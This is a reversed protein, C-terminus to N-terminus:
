CFVQHRYIFKHVRTKIVRKFVKKPKIVSKVLRTLQTCYSWENDYWVMLKVKNIGTDMSHNDVYFRNTSQLDSSVMSDTNVTYLEHVSLDDLITKLNVSKEFELSIDLLSCNNVPVRVSTGFIKGKLSPIIDTIGKSAGTTSPIINNFVSRSGTTDLVSQSNTAAHITIFNCHTISYKDNLVKLLPALCNTTCSSASIVRQNTYNNENAGYVFSPTNDKPPSSMIVLKVNYKLCEENTLFAGTADFLYIGQDFPENPLLLKITHRGIKVINPYIYKIDPLTYKHTSDYKLYEILNDCNRIKLNTINFYPDDLLQLLLCKGIRGFGNIGVDIM